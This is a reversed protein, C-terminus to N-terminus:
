LEDHMGRYCFQQRLKREDRRRRRQLQRHLGPDLVNNQAQGTNATFWIGNGFSYNTVTGTLNVDTLTGWALIGNQTGKDAEIGTVNVYSAAGLTVVDARVSAEIVHSGPAADERTRVYVRHAILDYFFSGVTM